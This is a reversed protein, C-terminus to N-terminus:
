FQVNSMIYHESSSTAEVKKPQSSLSTATSQVVTEANKLALEAKLADVQKKLDDVILLADSLTRESSTESALALGAVAFVCIFVILLLTKKM